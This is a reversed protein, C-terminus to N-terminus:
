SASTVQELVIASYPKVLAGSCRTEILYKQQNYDIDFDDFLNIAGGKDAGVNYDNLNVIIGLLDYTTGGDERNMNEMVEVTVIEKVRLATALKEVTDYIVRGQTDEMLICDTVVDETTFLSPNGSGKYEKRAKVAAKIFAKAKQDPTMASTVSVTKRITYLSSDKWIPRINDENIKDESSSLRGDGILIARSLEEDLMVRMESKIWSVVDFDTIDIVDDRDIKQKKYITCPSTTRKLLTFVEDKKLNGKFYGKARADEETIDAFVSKIKSFPTHHVGAMVTAVWDMKRSIFEPKETVNKADPFLFDINEVGYDQTHALFSEKLSGSKKGDKIIAEIDSHSLVAVNTGDSNERNTEFANHKMSDEGGEDQGDEEQQELAAGIMAYTVTRQEETMSNLVEQVDLEEPVTKESQKTNKPEEKKSDDDPKEEDPKDEHQLCVPEALYIYGELEESDGHSMVTDIYAEPNAGALVLSLEKIDGHIVDSGNQKLHNAYISLETIDGHEVLMKADQGNETGNFLGYAYVGNTRNELIAHGLVLGPTDHEHAWVLPVKKGDCHAFADRKIVRGDTCRLDNKTAYGSFDYKTKSKM